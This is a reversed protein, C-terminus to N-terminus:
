TPTYGILNAERDLTHFTEAGEFEPITYEFGVSSM